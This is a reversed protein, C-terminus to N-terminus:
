ADGRHLIGASADASTDPSEPDSDEDQNKKNQNKNQNKRGKNGTKSADAKDKEAKNRGDDNKSGAKRSDAKKGASGREELEKITSFVAKDVFAKVTPYDFRNDGEKILKKIISYLEDDIKIVAM